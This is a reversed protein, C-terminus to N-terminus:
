RLDDLSRVVAQAITRPEIQPAAGHYQKQFEEWIVRAVLQETPTLGDEDRAAWEAPHPGDHCWCDCLPLGSDQRMPTTVDWCTPHAGATCAASAM